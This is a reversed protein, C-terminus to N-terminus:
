KRRVFATAVENSRLVGVKYCMNYRADPNPDVLFLLMGEEDYMHSLGAYSAIETEWLGEEKLRRKLDKMWQKVTVGTGQNAM